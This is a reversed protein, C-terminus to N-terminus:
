RRAASVLRAVSEACQLAFSCFSSIERKGDYDYINETSKTISWTAYLFLLHKWYGNNSSDTKTRGSYFLFLHPLISFFITIYANFYGPYRSFM